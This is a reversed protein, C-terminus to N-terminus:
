TNELLKRFYEEDDDGGSDGDPEPSKEEVVKEAKKPKEVKEVKQVKEARNSSARELLERADDSGDGDDDGSRSAAPTVPAGNVAREFEAKLTDYSKFRSPDTFEGLRHCKSLLEELADEDGDLLESKPGFESSDYNPYKDKQKCRLKFDAGEWLDWVLISEQDEFEPKSKGVIMDHIAPGYRFLFVKGENEPNAPDKIVLINSIYITKRKRKKALDEDEKLKTKYLASNAEGVPDPLGITNPSENIYWKGSETQFAYRYTKVWPLEDDGVPPLFRIVASGVNAKDRTLNWFRKDEQQGNGSLSKEVKEFVAARNKRQQSLLGM